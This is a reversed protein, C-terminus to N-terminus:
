GFFGLFIPQTKGEVNVLRVACRKVKVPAYSNDLYGGFRFFCEIHNCNRPWPEMMADAVIYRVMSVLGFVVHDEKFSVLSQGGSLFCFNSRGANENDHRFTLRFHVSVDSHLVTDGESQSVILCLAFALSNDICHQPLLLTVTNGEAQNNSFWQPIESGPYM